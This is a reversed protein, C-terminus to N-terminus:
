RSARRSLRRAETVALTVDEPRREPAPLLRELQANISQLMVEERPSLEDGHLKKMVLRHREHEHRRLFEELNLAESDGMRSVSSGIQAEHVPLLSRLADRYQRAGTGFGRRFTPRAYVIAHHEARLM